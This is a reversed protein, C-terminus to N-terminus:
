GAADAELAEIAQVRVRRWEKLDCEPHRRLGMTEALSDEFEDVPDPYLEALEACLEEVVRPDVDRRAATPEVLSPRVRVLRPRGRSRVAREEEGLERSLRMTVAMRCERFLVARISVEPYPLAKV